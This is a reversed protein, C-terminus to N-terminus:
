RQVAWKVRNQLTSATPNEEIEFEDQGSYYVYPQEIEEYPCVLEARRNPGLWVIRIDGNVDTTVEAAAPITSDSTTAALLKIASRFGYYSPRIRGFRDTEDREALLAVEALTSALSHCAVDVNSIVSWGLSKQQGSLVSDYGAPQGNPVTLRSILLSTGTEYGRSTADDSYYETRVYQQQDRPLCTPEWTRNRQLRNSHRLRYRPEGFEHRRKSQASTM